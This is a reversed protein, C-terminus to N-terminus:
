LRMKWYVRMLHQFVKLFEPMEPKQVLPSNVLGPVDIADEYNLKRPLAQDAIGISEVSLKREREQLVQARKKRELKAIRRAKKARSSAKKHERSM